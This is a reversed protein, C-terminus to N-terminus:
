SRGGRGFGRRGRRRGSLWFFKRWILNKVSDRNIKVFNKANKERFVWRSKRTTTKLTTKTTWVRIRKLSKVLKKNTWSLPISRFIRSINKLSTFHRFKQEEKRILDYNQRLLWFLCVDRQEWSKGNRTEPQTLIQIIKETQNSIWHKLKHFKLSNTNKLIKRPKRYTKKFNQCLFPNHTLNISTKPMADFKCSCTYKSLLNLLPLLKWLFIRM